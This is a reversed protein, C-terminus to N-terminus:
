AKACSKEFFRLWLSVNLWRLIWPGKRPMSFHLSVKLEPKKGILNLKEVIIL